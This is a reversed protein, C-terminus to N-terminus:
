LGRLYEPRLMSVDEKTLISDISRLMKDKEHPLVGRVALYNSAHMSSFFCHSLNCKEVILKLEQLSQWPSISHFKGGQAKKYLPTGPVLTLTLAAAYEPDLASLIESTRICHQESGESGALGLIVTVSLDIGAEKAKKGASVIDWGSVGKRQTQLVEEDGSEIGVYVIGLKLKRLEELQKVSCRLLDQTTAYTAIRELQPFEDNLYTLAEILKDTPYVLADGDQLFVRKGDWSHAIEYVTRSMGPVLIRQRMYLSLADIEEKIDALPRIRLKSGYYGCFECTNNSCGSTMPLYYSKWESPPRIIMPRQFTSEEM